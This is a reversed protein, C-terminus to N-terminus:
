INKDLTTNARQIKSSNTFSKTLLRIQFQSQCQRTKNNNLQPSQFATVALSHPRQRPVVVDERSASHVTQDDVVVHSDSRVDDLSVSPVLLLNATEFPRGRSLKRRLRHHDTCWTKSCECRPKHWSLPCPSEPRHFLFSLSSRLECPNVWFWSVRQFYGEITLTASSVPWVELTRKM